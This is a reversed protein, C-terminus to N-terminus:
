KEDRDVGLLTDRYAVMGNEAKFCGLFPTKSPHDSRPVINKHKKQSFLAFFVCFLM